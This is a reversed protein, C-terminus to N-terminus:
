HLVEPSTVALALGAEKYPLEALLDAQLPQQQEYLEVLSVEWVSSLNMM